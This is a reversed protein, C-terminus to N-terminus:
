KKMLEDTLVQAKKALNSAREYDGETIAKRSQSIYTRIQTLMAQQDSSLNSSDVRKLDNETTDLLRSTSQRDRAAQASTIDPGIAVEAASNAPNPPPHLEATTPPAATQAPSPQATAQTPKAKKRTKKTPLPPPAKQAAAEEPNEPVPEPQIEYPLTQTLTPAEAPAPLNPTQVVQKKHCALQFALLAVLLGLVFQRKSNM